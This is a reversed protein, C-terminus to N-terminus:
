TKGNREARAGRRGFLYIMLSGVALAGLLCWVVLTYSAFLSKLREFNAGVAYGAGLLLANWVVASITAYLLVKTFSMRAAGAAVFFFARIGPLFRNILIYAAGHRSFRALLLDYKERTLPTFGHKNKESPLKTLRRGLWVGIGYDIAAGVLSGGTVILMAYAFSWTGVVVLWAGLLTIVDGPFPPFVYEVLSSGFLVLAGLGHANQIVYDLVSQVLGPEQM